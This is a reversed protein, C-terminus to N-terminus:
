FTMGNVPCLYIKAISHHGSARVFASRYQHLLVNTLLMHESVSILVLDPCDIVINAIWLRPIRSMGLAFNNSRTPLETSWPFHRTVWHQSSGLYLLNKGFCGFTGHFESTNDRSYLSKINFFLNESQLIRQLQGAGYVANIRLRYTICDGVFLWQSYCVIWLWNQLWSMAWGVSLWMRYCSGTYWSVM